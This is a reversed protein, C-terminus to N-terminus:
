PTKVLTMTAFPLHHMLERLVLLTGAFVPDEPLGEHAAPRGEAVAALRNFLREMAELTLVRQAGRPVGALTALEHLAADASWPAWGQGGPLLGQLQRHAVYVEDEVVAIANELELPTPVAHRFFQRATRAGGLSLSLKVSPEPADAGAAWLVQQAGLHLGSSWAGPAAHRRAQLYSRTAPDDALLDQRLAQVSASASPSSSSSHNVLNRSPQVSLHALSSLCGAIAKSCELGARNLCCAHGNLPYLPVHRRPLARRAASVVRWRRGVGPM